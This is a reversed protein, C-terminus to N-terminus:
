QYGRGRMCPEIEQRIRPNTKANEILELRQGLPMKAFSGCFFDTHAREYDAKTPNPNVLRKQDATLQEPMPLEGCAELAAKTIRPYDPLSFTVMQGNETFRGTRSPCDLTVRATLKGDLALFKVGRGDRVVSSPDLLAQEGEIKPKPAEQVVRVQPLLRSNASQPTGACASLVLSTVAIFAAVNFPKTM